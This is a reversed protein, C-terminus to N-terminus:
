GDLPNSVCTLIPDSTSKLLYYMLKQLLMQLILYLGDRVLFDHKLEFSAGVHSGRKFQPMLLIENSLHLILLGFPELYLSQFLLLLTALYTPFFQLDFTTYLSLM